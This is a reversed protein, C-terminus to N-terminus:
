WPGTQLYLLLLCQLLTIPFIIYHAIKRNLRYVLALIGLAIGTGALKFGMFLSIDEGGLQILLRGIPNLEEDPLVRGYQIALYLDYASILVIIVWQLAFWKLSKKELADM